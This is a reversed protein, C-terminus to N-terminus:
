PIHEGSTDRPVATNETSKSKGSLPSMATSDASVQAARYGHPGESEIVGYRRALTADAHAAQERAPKLLADIRLRLADCMDESKYEPHQARWRPEVVAGVWALAQRLRPLLTGDVHGAGRILRYEHSIDLEWLVRHLFETGDQVNLVDADGVDLYIALGSRRIAEANARARNAPNAQDFLYQDRQPGVLPQPCGATYFFRNRLAVRGGVLSPEIVPAVAATAAFREPRRFAIRLSGHGGMSLGAIATSGRDARVRYTRRVWELLTDSIFSEWALSGDPMDLYFSFPGTSAAAIVMPPLAGNRWWLEFFRRLSKLDDASGGYGHLAICVPLPESQDYSPPLLVSCSVDSEDFGSPLDVFELRSRTM